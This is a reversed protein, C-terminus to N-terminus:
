MSRMPISVGSTVPDVRMGRDGRLRHLDGALERGCEVGRFVDGDGLSQAVGM